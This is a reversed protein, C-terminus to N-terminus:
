NEEGNRKSGWGVLRVADSRYVWDSACVECGDVTDVVGRFAVSMSEAKVAVLSGGDNRQESDQVVVVRGMWKSDSESTDNGGVRVDDFQGVVTVRYM